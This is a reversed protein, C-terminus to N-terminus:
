SDHGRQTVVLSVPPDVGVETVPDARGIPLSAPSMSRTVM